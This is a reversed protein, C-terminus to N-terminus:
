SAGWHDQYMDGPRGPVGTNGQYGQKGLSFSSPPIGQLIRIREICCYALQDDQVLM